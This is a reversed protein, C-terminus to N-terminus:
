QLVATLRALNDLSKLYLPRRAWSYANIQLSGSIYRHEIERLQSVVKKDYMVMTIEQDLEFSRIDLNSSGIVAVSDDITVHKSHLFVPSKYLCVKVGVKLLEDYYSRQAHGVLLKDIIESNIMTIEVGREAASTIANLLADDPVFYPTVIVIKKEASHILSTYLKLNRSGGHGPGSPLVQAAVSGQRSAIADQPLFDKTEAYWDSRFLAALQWVVPGTVRAVLEEYYLEDSRHYTKDVINQSGTYGILGDIVVIKRHNRLDPRTFNKGPKLSIPLMPQWLIGAATLRKKLQRFNPYQRCVFSDFLVRVEVGREVADQLAQWVPKTTDDLAIIFYEFLIRKKAGNIDKVLSDLAEQYDELFTFSNGGMVPLGGLAQNLKIFQENQETLEREPVSIGERLFNHESLEKHIHADAHKQMLQRTKPLRPKGFAAYIITGIAPELMILMLWATASSPRRNKPVIFLMILRLVWELTVFIAVFSSWNIRM